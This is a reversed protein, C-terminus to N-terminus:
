EDDELDKFDVDIANDEEKGSAKKITKAKKYIYYVRAAAAILAADDLWGFGFIVDPVLDVPSLVYAGVGLCFLMYLWKSM